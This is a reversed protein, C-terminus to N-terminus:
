FSAERKPFILNGIRIETAGCKVATPYDGSMGMSINPINLRSALEKMQLFYRQPSSSVPPICMLGEFSRNFEPTVESVLFGNKNKENELKIQAYYRILKQRKAAEKQLKELDKFSSIGYVANCYKVINRVNGSQFNGIFTLSVDPFLGQIEEWKKLETAYNEGYCLHGTSKIFNIIRETEIGKTVILIKTNPLSARLQNYGEISSEHQAKIM